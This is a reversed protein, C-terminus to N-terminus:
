KEFVEKIKQPSANRPINHVKVPHMEDVDKQPSLLAVRFLRSEKPGGKRYGPSSPNTDPAASDGDLAFPCEARKTRDPLYSPQRGSFSSVSSKSFSSNLSISM